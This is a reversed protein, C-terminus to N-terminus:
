YAFCVVSLIDSASFALAAGTSITQNQITVGTTTSGIQVCRQDSRNAATATLNEVFCNWGTAATPMAFVGGTAVGGTGVNIRFSTATGTIVPTVGFGSAVTPATSSVLLTAGNVYSPATVSGVFSWNQAISITGALNAGGTYFRIVGAADIASLSLGGPALAELSLGNAVRRNATTFGSSFGYLVGEQTAGVTISYGAITATPTTTNTNAVSVQNIANSAASFSSTGFGTVSLLGSMNVAVLTSTGSADITSVNIPGAKIGGTGATASPTAGGVVLSNVSTDTTVIKSFSSNQTTAM